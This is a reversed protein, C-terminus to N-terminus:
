RRKTLTAHQSTHRYLRPRQDGDAAGSSAFVEDPKNVNNVDEDLTLLLQLLLEHENIHTSQLGKGKYRIDSMKAHLLRLIILDDYRKVNAKYTAKATKAAGPPAGATTATAATKAGAPQEAYGHFPPWIFVHIIYGFLMPLSMLM